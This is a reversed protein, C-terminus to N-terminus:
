CFRLEWGNDGSELDVERGLVIPYNAAIHGASFGFVIPIQWDGFLSHIIEEVNLGFGIEHDRMASFGGILLGKIGNLAGSRKLGFLMRDIHYLYEDVDELFLIANTMSPFANSGLASYLVSLNGGLLVGKAKGNVQLSHKKGKYTPLKGLLCDWTQDMAKLDLAHFSVPMSCHLSQFGLSQIRGHLISLDSYGCIWKPNKTFVDWDVLDLMRVTGYGGRVGFIAKVRENELMATFDRAREKDNGGFQNFPKTCHASIEVQFGANEIYKIARELENEPLFRATATLGICDGQNLFLPEFM